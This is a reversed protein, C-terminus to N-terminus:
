LEKNSYIKVSVGYSILLFIVALAFLIMMIVANGQLNSFNPLLKNLINSDIRQIYKALYTIGTFTGFLLIINIIRSKIYGVKFYVPFYIGTMLSVSIFGSLFGEMTLTYIKISIGVNKLISTFLMYVVTGVIFFIIDSLYKMAVIQSRKVPLSNIMVDAKNKEESACSYTVLLYTFATIGAIFTGIGSNQFALIVFFLYFFGFTIQKKQIIVDKLVLHLSLM